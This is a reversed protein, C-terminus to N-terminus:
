GEVDAGSGVALDQQLAAPSHDSAWVSRAQAYLEDLTISWRNAAERILDMLDTSLRSDRYRIALRAAHVIEADGPTEAQLLAQITGRDVRDMPHLSASSSAAARPTWSRSSPAYGASPM